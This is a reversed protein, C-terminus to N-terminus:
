GYTIKPILQYMYKKKIIVVLKFPLLVVTSGDLKMVSFKGINHGTRNPFIAKFQNTSWKM